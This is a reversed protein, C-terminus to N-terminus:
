VRLERQISSEIDEEKRANEEQRYASRQLASVDQCLSRRSGDRGDEALESSEPRCCDSPEGRTALM